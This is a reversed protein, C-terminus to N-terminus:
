NNPILRYGEPSKEYKEKLEPLRNFFGEMLNKPDVIVDPMEKKFARHILLVHDYRDPQEVIPQFLSWEYFPVALTNYQFLAPQNDLVLIRKNKIEIDAEGVVLNENRISSIKDYRVLYAMVVISLFLIWVNMDAFKRRRILLLFHTLFFSVPPLLPILSQPRLDNSFFLQVIVVVFWLFMAQFIQSQYKSLRADRGLIFLSVFLYFLPIACLIVLSKLGMLSHTPFKLNPLYYFQWLADLSDMFFYATHLLLHPLLFGFALLLYKRLTTRTFLALILVAGALYILYSFNFLSALSIFVGLNFITEDRQIRFEIEKFLNNLALLTFGFAALDATLAITDHAIFALVSFLFSPIYTNESFAKKDILVIGWFASQLFLILFGALHRMTLSRGFIDCVGYFWSALPPTSDILESYLSYGESVREGLVFSELEPFTLMPTDIFMPLYLLTM